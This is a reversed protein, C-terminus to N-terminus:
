KYVDLYQQFSDYEKMENDNWYQLIYNDKINKVNLSNIQAKLDKFIMEHLPTSKYSNKILSETTQRVYNRLLMEEKDTTYLEKPVDLCLNYKGINVAGLSCVINSLYNLVYIDGGAHSSTSLMINHKGSLYLIKTWIHLRDIFTKMIGSVNNMYIPTAWIIINAEMMKTKFFEM